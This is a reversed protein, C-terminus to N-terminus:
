QYTNPAHPEVDPNALITYAFYMTATYPSDNGSGLSYYNESSLCELSKKGHVSTNPARTLMMIMQIVVPISKYRATCRTMLLSYSILASSISMVAPRPTANLM